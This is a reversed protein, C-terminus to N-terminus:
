ILYSEIDPRDFRQRKANGKLSNRDNMRKHLSNPDVRLESEDNLSTANDSLLFQAVISEAMQWYSTGIERKLCCQISGSLSRYAEDGSRHLRVCESVLDKAKLYLLTDKRMLYKMFVCIIMWRRKKRIKEEVTTRSRNSSASVPSSFSSLFTLNAMDFALLEDHTADHPPEKKTYLVDKSYARAEHWYEPGVVDKLPARMCELVSDAEGRKKKQECDHIVVQANHYVSPDRKELLRMLIKTFVLFRRKQQKTAERKATTNSIPITTTSWETTFSSMSRAKNGRLVRDSSYIKHLDLPPATSISCEDEMEYRVEFLNPSASTVHLSGFIGTGSSLSSEAIQYQSCYEM